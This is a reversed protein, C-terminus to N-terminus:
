SALSRFSLVTLAASSSGFPRSRGWSPGPVPCPFSILEVVHDVDDVAQRAFEGVVGFEELHALLFAVFGAQQGDLAFGGLEGGFDFFHFEAPHEVVRGVRQLQKRSMWAPAPPVSAQSQALM